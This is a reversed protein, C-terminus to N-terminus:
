GIWAVDAEDLVRSAASALQVLLHTERVGLSGFQLGMTGARVWRVVAPLALTCPGGPLCCYLTVSPGFFPPVDAEIRAGGISIDTVRGVVHDAGDSTCVAAIIDM